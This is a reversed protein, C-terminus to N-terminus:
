SISPSRQAALLRARRSGGGLAADCWGRPDDVLGILRSYAAGVAPALPQHEAVVVAPPAWSASLVRRAMAQELSPRLREGLERLHGGLVVVPVDLLNM